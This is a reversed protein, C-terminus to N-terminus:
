SDQSRRTWQELKSRPNKSFDAREGTEYGGGLDLAEPMLQSRDLPVLREEEVGAVAGLAKVGARVYAREARNTQEQM